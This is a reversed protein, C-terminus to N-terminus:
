SKRSTFINVGGGSPHMFVFYAVAALAIVAGMSFAGLGSTLGANPDGCTPGAVGSQGAAQLMQNTLADAQAGISVVPTCSGPIGQMVYSPMTNALTQTLSAVTAAFQSPQGLQNFTNNMLDVSAQANSCQQSTTVLPPPNCAM